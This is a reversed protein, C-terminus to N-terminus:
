IDYHVERRDQIEHHRRVLDELSVAEMAEALTASLKAWLEQVVCFDGRDCSAKNTACAVLDMDGELVGLVERISLASPPRALRYGGHAGREAEVLGAAKLPTVVQWLYKESIQQRKAVEKLAVAGDQQHLAVDLLFRVGYRGKTSIKM